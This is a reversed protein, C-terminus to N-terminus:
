RIAAVERNSRELVNALKTKKSLLRNNYIDIANEYAKVYRRAMVNHNFRRAAQDRVLARDINKAEAYRAYAEEIDEVILGTKKDEVLELMAGRNFTLTPTGCLAAEVVTLGFPERWPALHLNLFSDGFVENREKHGLEGLYDVKHGMPRIISPYCKEIFYERDLFDVKGGLVIDLKAKEALELALHTGKEASFRGVWSVQEQPTANFLFDDPDMGNYITGMYNLHPMPVRQSNSIAAFLMHDNVKNYFDMNRFHFPGHLTTLKPIHLQSFDLDDTLEHIHLVDIRHLNEKIIDIANLLTAKRVGAVVAEEVIQSQFPISQDIIPIIECSAQSDGSAFLVPEHGLEKLGRILYHIVRETGGYKLPPIPYVPSALIGIRM